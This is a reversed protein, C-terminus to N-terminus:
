AEDDFQILREVLGKTKKKQYSNRQLLMHGNPMKAYM